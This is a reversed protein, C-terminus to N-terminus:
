INETFNNKILLPLIQTIRTIHLKKLLSRKIKIYLSYDIDLYQSIGNFNYGQVLLLMVEKETTTLLSLM